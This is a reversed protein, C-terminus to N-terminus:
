QYCDLPNDEELSKPVFQEEADDGYVGAASSQAAVSAVDTRRLAAMDEDRNTEDTEM